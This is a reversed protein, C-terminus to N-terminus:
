DPGIEIEKRVVSKEPYAILELAWTVSVLSGVCSYPAPPLRFHFSRTEQALPQELTLHEVVGADEIGKGRTFWFLRLELNRPAPEGRWSVTGNLEEGPEFTTRDGALDIKLETM